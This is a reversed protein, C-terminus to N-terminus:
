RAARQVGRSWAARLEAAQEGTGRSETIEPGTPTMEVSFGVSPTRGEPDTARVWLQYRDTEGQHRALVSAVRTLQPALAAARVELGVYPPEDEEQTIELTGTPGPSTLLEHGLMVLSDDGGPVIEVVDGVATLFHLTTSGLAEGAERRLLEMLPMATALSGQLRVEVAPGALRASEVGPGGSLVEIVRTPDVREAPDQFSATFVNDTVVVEVPGLGAGHPGAAAAAEAPAVARADSVGLIVGEPQVALGTLAFATRAGDHQSEVSRALDVAATPFEGTARLLRDLGTTGEATFSVELRPGAAPAVLEWATEAVTWFDARRTPRLTLDAREPGLDAELVAVDPNDAAWALAAGVYSDDAADSDADIRATLHQRQDHTRADEWLTVLIERPDLDRAVQIADSIQEAEAGLQLDLSITCSFEPCGVTAEQVGPADRFAEEVTEDSIGCAALSLLALVVLAAARARRRVPRPPAAPRPM